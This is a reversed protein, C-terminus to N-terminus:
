VVRWQLYTIAFALAFAALLVAAIVAIGKVSSSELGLSMLQPRLNCIIHVALAAVFLLNVILAPLPFARQNEAHAFGIIHMLMFVAILIGSIRVAIYRRNESAYSAGSKASAIFGQVTLFIGIFIHIWAFLEAIHAIGKMPEDLVGVLYLGNTIGHAAFSLVLLAAVVANVQRLRATKEM